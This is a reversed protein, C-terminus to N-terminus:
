RPTMSAGNAAAPSNSRRDGHRLCRPRDSAPSCGPRPWAFRLPRRCSSRKAASTMVRGPSCRPMFPQHLVLTGGALLWPLLGLSIGCFSAPAITSLIGADPELRGELFACIGGALLELHNRAAPVPGDDGADFTIVAVHAVGNGKRDRELTPVPDLETATFLDDFSVVGDPLSAGFGCVYRISFVDAAIYTALQAHDFGGARACSILAKAGVRALAAAAETRRWLLPLPAAIM